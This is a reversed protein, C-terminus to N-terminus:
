DLGALAAIEGVTAVSPRVGLKRCALSGAASAFRLSRENDWGRALGYLVAAHFIDGAGTPDVVEAPHAAIELCGRADLAIAGQEGLTVATLRRGNHMRELAARDTGGVHARAFEASTVLLDTCELLQPTNARVRSADLMVTIGRRNAERALVLAAEEHHGDLHLFAAGDLADLPAEDASLQLGDDGTVLITRTGGAREVLITAERTRRGPALALWRVDVGSRALGEHLRQGNFDGGVRGAFRTRVGWAALAAVANAVQGGDGEIEERIRQTDNPEPFRDLVLIRDWVANGLGVVLPTEGRTV